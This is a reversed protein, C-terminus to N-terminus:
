WWYGFGYNHAQIYNGIHWGGYWVTVISSATGVIKVAKAARWYGPRLGGMVAGHRIGVSWYRSSVARVASRQLVRSGVESAVVTPPGWPLVLPDLYDDLPFTNSEFAERYKDMDPSLSQSTGKFHQWWMNGPGWWAASTGRGEPSLKMDYFPGWKHGTDTDIVVYGQMRRMAQEVEWQHAAPVHRLAVAIAKDSPGIRIAIEHLLGMPDVSAGPGSGAYVYLSFPGGYGVPDRSVFRGFVASYYRNHYQMLGSETDLRRATFLYPNRVDSLGDQDVSGDAGLVTAAGYADYRYREVVSGNGDSLAYVSFLTNAHYYVVENTDGFDSDANLDREQVAVADIYGPCYTFRAVLADNGDREELCQWDSDGGWIFRTTGNLGGKNSVVKRVRRGQADYRYVGVTNWNGSQREKAEILRNRYDWVYQHNGDSSGDQVLNGADDYTLDIASGQGITRQTLENISNHTRTETTADVVTNDWNGLPDLSWTQTRTPNTIDTKAENLQGREFSTLRYV